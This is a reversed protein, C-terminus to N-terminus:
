DHKDSLSQPSAPPAHCACTAKRRDQPNGSSSSGSMASAAARGNEAFLLTNELMPWFGHIIVAIASENPFGGCIDAHLKLVQLLPWNSYVCGASLITCTCDLTQLDPWQGLCLKVMGLASYTLDRHVCTSLNCFAEVVKSWSQM